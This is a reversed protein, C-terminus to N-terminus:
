DIMYGEAYLVNPELAIFDSANVANPNTILYDVAAALLRTAPAADGAYGGISCGIGTPIISLVASRGPHLRRDEPPAEPAGEDLLTVELVLERETVEGVYWRLVPREALGAVLEPLGDIETLKARPVRYRRNVIMAREDAM